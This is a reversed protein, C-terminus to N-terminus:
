SHIVSELLKTRYEWRLPDVNIEPTRQSFAYVMMQLLEDDNRYLLVNSFQKFFDNSPHRPLIVWKNMAVAEGTTTCLVESISPNFFVSYSQVEDAPKSTACLSTYHISKKKLVSSFEREFAHLPEGIVKLHIARSDSIRDMATMFASINKEPILKGIFYVSNELRGKVDRGFFSPHIGNFNIVDKRKLLRFMPHVVDSLAYQKSFLVSVLFSLSVFFKLQLKERLMYMYNTHHIYIIKSKYRRWSFCKRLLDRLAFSNGTFGYFRGLVSVTDELVVKDYQDILDEILNTRCDTFFGTENCDLEADYFKFNFHPDADGLYEKSLAVQADTSVCLRMWEQNSQNLLRDSIGKGITFDPLYLDVTHGQKALYSARLLPNVSTGTMWPISANTVIALKM